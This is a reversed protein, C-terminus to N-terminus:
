ISLFLGLLIWFHLFSCDFSYSCQLQGHFLPTSFVEMKTILGIVYITWMTCFFPSSVSSVFFNGTTSTLNKNIYLSGFNYISSEIRFTDICSADGTLTYTLPDQLFCISFEINM